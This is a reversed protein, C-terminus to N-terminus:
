NKIVAYELLCTVLCSSDIGMKTCETIGCKGIKKDTASFAKLACDTKCHEKHAKIFSMLQAKKSKEELHQGVKLFITGGFFGIIIIGFVLNDIPKLFSLSHRGERVDISIYKRKIQTKLEIVKKISIWIIPCIIALYIPISYVGFDHLVDYISRHFCNM